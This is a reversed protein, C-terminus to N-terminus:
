RGGEAHPRTDGTEEELVQSTVEKAQISAEEKSISAAEAEVPLGRGPLSKILVEEDGGAQHRPGQPLFLLANIKM